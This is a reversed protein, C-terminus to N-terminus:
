NTFDLDKETEICFEVGSRAERKSSAIRSGLYKFDAVLNLTAGDASQLPITADINNLGGGCLM